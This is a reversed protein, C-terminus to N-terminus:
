NDWGPNQSLTIGIAKYLDIQGTPISNFYHKSADFKRDSAPYVKIYGEANLSINKQEEVSLKDKDLYAGLAVDPNAVYDLYDGKRWRMLDYYRLETWGMLEARRERRIEWIISSVQGTTTELKSIRKPDSITVGNSKVENENIYTLPMVGVRARLLNVSKDLVEQNMEKLEACAEAYNLLVEAYSFIPADITNQGITTVNTPTVGQSPANYYMSFVYGTSSKRARSLSKDSGKFSIGESDVAALLRADRNKM